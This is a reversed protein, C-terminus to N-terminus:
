PTYEEWLFSHIFGSTNGKEHYVSVHYGPTIIMSGDLDVWNVTPSYFTDFNASMDFTQFVQELVPAVTFTHGDDCNAVSAPGGSLRNRAVIAKAAAAAGTGTMLGVHTIATDLIVSVAFGFGLMSLNKGSGVPNYITLGTYILTFDDVTTVAAQNAVAFIRGAETAERYKGTAQTVLAGGVDTRLPNITGESASILGVRGEAQM